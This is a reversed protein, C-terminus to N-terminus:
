NRRRFLLLSAVGLGALAIISPEPIVTLTIPATWGTLGSPPGPPVGGGGTAQNFNPSKGILAMSPLSGEVYFWASVGPATASPTTGTTPTTLYGSANVTINTAIPAYSMVNDPSWWLVGVTGIPAKSNDELQFYQNASTSAFNLTGQAFVLTPLLVVAFTAIVLKKM